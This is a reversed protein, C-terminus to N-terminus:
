QCAAPRDLRNDTKQMKSKLCRLGAEEYTWSTPKPSLLAASSTNYTSLCGPSEGFIDEALRLHPVNDGLGIVTGGCDAGPPGPDGPYLGMVNLVDRFNLGVARIRLQAMGPAAAARVSTDAQPVVRLGTLSGRAPMNLRVAGTYKVVSRALKAASMEGDRIAIEEEEAPLAPLIDTSLQAWADSEKSADLDVCTIRLAGSPPLELTVAVLTAIMMMLRVNMMSDNEPYDNSDTSHMIFLMRALRVSIRMMNSDSGHQQISVRGPYEM